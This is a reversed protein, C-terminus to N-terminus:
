AIARRQFGRLRDAISIDDRDENKTTPCCGRYLPPVPTVVYGQGIGGHVEGAHESIKYRPCVMYRIHVRYMLPRTGPVHVRYM